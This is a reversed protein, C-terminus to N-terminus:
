DIPIARRRPNGEDVYDDLFESVFEEHPTTGVFCWMQDEDLEFLAYVVCRRKWARVELTV